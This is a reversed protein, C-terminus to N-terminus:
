SDDLDWNLGASFLDEDSANTAAVGAFRGKLAAPGAAPVLRAVPRGHRTILIDEGAGVEDLLALLRAKAETASLTRTV